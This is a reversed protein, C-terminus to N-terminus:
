FKDLLQITITKGAPVKARQWNLFANQGLPKKMQEKTEAVIKVVADFKTPNTIVLRGRKNLKADVHDLVFLDGKDKNIYIGPLETYTLMMSTEAWSSYAFGEGIGDLWDNMNNRESIWGPKSDYFQHGEYTMYQPITHAIDRLLKIYFENGTARYLKLLAIGSHTCIGGCSTKNQTNAYVTGTCRIDMRAYTSNSPFKYDYAVIWSSFQCAMEEAIRLWKPNRTVEHLETFSELLGYASESDFSQMADGPGGCTLGKVVFNTYYYDAIQEASKLFHEDGTQRYAECLAAPFIGASTTNGVILEGTIQNAWHGPQGYKEWIQLQAQLARMNGDQWAPKVTQGRKKMLDFQKLASYVADANKRTLTLDAGGLYQYKSSLFEGQHRIDFYLGSPSLGQPYLWDLNQIVRKHSSPNEGSLLAYTTILGGTWGPQWDQGWHDNTGTAYYGETRWNLNNKNKEILSFAKSFPILDPKPQEPYQKSRLDAMENYLSQISPSQFFVVVFSITVDDGASFDVTLDTSPFVDMRCLWHRRIERVVPSTITITAKTRDSNEEIDIGYDGYQNGQSTALWFGQDEESSHFGIGPFSMSGSREQIRSYGDRYNLRPGDSMLLPKELGIQNRHTFFPPYDVQVNPYRNGNYVAAPMLVYNEESWGSFDLDVSVSADKVEGSLCKFTIDVQYKGPNEMPKAQKTIQWQSGQFDLSERDSKLEVRKRELLLNYRDPDYHNIRAYLGAHNETMTVSMEQARLSPSLFCAMMLFSLLVLQKRKM